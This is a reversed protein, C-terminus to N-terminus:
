QNFYGPLYSGGAFANFVDGGQKSINTLFPSSQVRQGVSQLFPSQGIVSQFQHPSPKIGLGQSVADGGAGFISGITPFIRSLASPAQAGPKQYSNSPDTPVTPGGGPGYMGKMAALQANQYDRQAQLQQQQLGIQAMAAEHSLQSGYLSSDQGIQTNINNLGNQYQQYVGNAIDGIRGKASDIAGSIANATGYQNGIDNLVSSMRQFASPGGTAGDQQQFANLDNAPAAYAAAQANGLEQYQPQFNNVKSALMSTITNQSTPAYGQAQQQLNQINSYTQDSSAM